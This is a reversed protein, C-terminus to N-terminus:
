VSSQQDHASKYATYYEAIPASEFDDWDLWTYMGKIAQLFNPESDIVADLDFTYAEPSHQWEEFLGPMKQTEANGFVSKTKKTKRWRYAWKKATVNVYKVQPWHCAFQTVHVHAHAGHTVWLGQQVASRVVQPIDQDTHQHSWRFGIMRHSGLEYDVWNDNIKGPQITDLVWALKQRYFDANVPAKLQWAIYDQDRLVCHRSLGLCNQVFNGGAGPYYNVAVMRGNDIM